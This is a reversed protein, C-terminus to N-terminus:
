VRTTSSCVLESQRERETYRSRHSLYFFPSYPPDAIRTQKEQEENAHLRRRRGLRGGERGEKEKIGILRFGTSKDCTQWRRSPSNGHARCAQTRYPVLLLHKGRPSTNKCRVKKKDWQLMTDVIAATSQNGGTAQVGSRTPHKQPTSNAYWRM